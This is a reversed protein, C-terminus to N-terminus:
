IGLLVVRFVVEGKYSFELREVCVDLLGKNTRGNKIKEQKIVQAVLSASGKQIQCEKLELTMTCDVIKIVNIKKCSQLKKLRKKVRRLVRTNEYAVEMFFNDETKIAYEMAEVVSKKAIKKCKKLTEYSVNERELITQVEIVTGIKENKM